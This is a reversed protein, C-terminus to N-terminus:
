DNGDNDGDDSLIHKAIDINVVVVAAAAVVFTNALGIDDIFSTGDINCYITIVNIDNYM